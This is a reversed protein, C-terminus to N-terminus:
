AGWGGDPTVNPLFLQAQHLGDTDTVKFHLRTTDNRYSLLSLLQIDGPTNSSIPETNFFRSVSLWEASCESLRSQSGFAMIYDTDRATRFDHELGFAHGLEHLALGLREFGIGSAPIVTFGGLGEEGHTINRHRLKMQGDISFYSVAAFGGLTEDSVDIVVFYIHQFDDFHERIEEWVKADTLSELYYDEKFKGDVHHVVSKVTKIPKLLSPKEAMDM